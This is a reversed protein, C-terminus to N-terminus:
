YRPVNGPVHGAIPKGYTIPDMKASTRPTGCQHAFSITVRMVGVIPHASNVVARPM